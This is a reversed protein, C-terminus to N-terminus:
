ESILKSYATNGDEDTVQILYIGKNLNNFYVSNEGKVSITSVVRGNLEILSVNYNAAKEFSVTAAGHAPNPYVSFGSKSIGAISATSVTECSNYVFVPLITDTTRGSLDINRNYGGLGNDSGCGGAKFDGTEGSEDGKDGNFFKWSYAGAYMMVTIDYIDDKNADMLLLTDKTWNCLGMNSIRDMFDGALYLGNSSVIENGMDVRFTVKIPSGSLGPISYSIDGTTSGTNDLTFKKNSGVLKWGCQNEIGWEFTGEEVDTKLTWTNDGATADGNTGDDYMDKSNWGFMAGKLKITTEKKSLDIVTFTVPHTPNSKPIVIETQGTVTSGAVTFTYNPVGPTLWANDQDTAGWEYTGDSATIELSWINDNATVDGNTGDDYASVDAWSNFQGKFKIATKNKNNSDNVKLLVKTQANSVLAGVCVFLALYVKKM